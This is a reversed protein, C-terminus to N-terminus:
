KKNVTKVPDSGEGDLLKEDKQEREKRLSGIVKKM